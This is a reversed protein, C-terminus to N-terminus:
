TIIMSTFEYQCQGVGDKVVFTLKGDEGRFYKKVRGLERDSEEDSITAHSQSM